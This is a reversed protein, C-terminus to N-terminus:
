LLANLANFAADFRDLTGADLKESLTGVQEAFRRAPRYYNFSGTKLPHADLHEEINVVIRPHKGLDALTIPALLENAYEANVLDLYFQRDFMDEIDAEPTGTFDAFTLVNKRELLKKKYLNAIAQQDKKQFDILTAVKLNKQSGM